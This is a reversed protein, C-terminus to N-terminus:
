ACKVVKGVEETELNINCHDNLVKHAGILQGLSLGGDNTPVRQHWYPLLGKDKLGFIIRETLYKNQFCGGSLVIREFGSKLCVAIAIGALSNHFKAAMMGVPIAAKIDELIGRAVPEWNINYKLSNESSVTLIECPYEENTNIGNLAYELEMAAQGEFKAVGCIGLLASVGDFLRGVSSTEPSQFKKELLACMMRLEEASFSKVVPLNMELVSNGFIEYLLGIAARKPERIARENGPLGFKRFSAIRKIEENTVSFFEGGWITGDTGYGTGDWAVGLFPGKVENEASCSLIHAIHHQIHFQKIGSREAFHTSQYDPHYDCVVTEPVIGYLREFHKIVSQFKIYTESAALDGIYQSIFVDSQSSVSITNKMQGGVSMMPQLPVDVSVPLPAFGRARRLLMQRGAIERVISDDVHSSIRRNHVLFFDAIKGLKEIAALNDTIIPEESLNGSTAVVPFGLNEMILYHLPTCPLMVGLFPNRPAAYESISSLSDSGVRRKLLVIPSEPSKLLRKEVASMECDIEVSELNPYMLAFPKEDRSKLRRLRKVTENSRADTVLQFGGLGKLAVIAGNRIADCFKQFAPGHSAIPKGENTWLEIHPGCKHCANAQAHFRRSLPNEYEAQCDSCMKFERMTTNARDYPLSEIISFRPGCHTCNTFPYAYRRNAKDFIEQLCEPCTAVDPMVVASKKGSFSQRIEFDGYGSYDLYSNEMSQIFSRSPKESMIRTLFSELDGREGEAEVIVGEGSNSVWGKLGMENALRYVFPRFGVGQVAGRLVVRLREKNSINRMGFLVREEV